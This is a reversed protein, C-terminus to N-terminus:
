RTSGRITLHHPVNTHHPTVAEGKILKILNRVATMGIETASYSVTSLQPRVVGSMFSGDFGFVAVDDPVKYGHDLLYNMAGIAMWDTSCFVATPQQEGSGAILRAMAETGDEVSMGSTTVWHKNIEMGAAALARAYGEYRQGGVAGEDEGRIIGIRQHGQQILYTVAEFSATVNDIHVSPIFTVPSVEGVVVCPLKHERIIELHRQELPSGVFIIGQVGIGGFLRLYGLENEVTADTLGVTVDYGYLDAVNTIGTNFDDLVTNTNHPLIVGILLADARPGASDGPLMGARYNTARIAEMVRRRVDDNVPKSNNVVRSVTSISVGAM